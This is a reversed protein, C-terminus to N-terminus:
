TFQEISGNKAPWHGSAPIRKLPFVCTAEDSLCSGVNVHSLIPTQDEEDSFCELRRLQSEVAEHEPTNIVIKIVEAEIDQTPSQNNLTENEQNEILQRRTEQYTASQLAAVQITRKRALARLPM